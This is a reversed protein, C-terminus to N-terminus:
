NQVILMYVAIFILLIGIYTQRQDKTFIEQIYEFWASDEPKEFLDNTFGIVSTSINKSISKLSLNAISTTRNKNYQEEIIQNSLSDLEELEITKQENPIFPNTTIKSREQQLIPVTNSINVISNSM